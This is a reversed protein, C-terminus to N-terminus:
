RAEDTKITWIVQNSSGGAVNGANKKYYYEESEDVDYVETVFQGTVEEGPEISGTIMEVSDYGGSTDTFGSGDVQNSVEMSVMLDDLDLSHDSTNKITLDIIIFADFEPAKEDIEDVLSATNVTMNYTGLTTDFTGTDGVNLDLQDEAEIDNPGESSDTKEEEDDTEEPENEEINEDNSNNPEQTETEADNEDNCAVLLLFCLLFISILIMNKKM